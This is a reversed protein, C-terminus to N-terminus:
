ISQVGSCPEISLFLGTTSTAGHIFRQPNHQIFLTLKLSDYATHDWKHPIRVAVCNPSISVLDTTALSHLYVYAHNHSDLITTSLNQTKYRCLHHFRMSHSEGVCACGGCAHAQLTSSIQVLETSQPPTSKRTKVNFGLQVPYRWQPLSLDVLDWLITKKKKTKYSERFRHNNWFLFNWSIM